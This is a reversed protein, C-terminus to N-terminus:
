FLTFIACSLCSFRNLGNLFFFSSKESSKKNKSNELQREKENNKIKEHSRLARELTLQRYQLIRHNIPVCKSLTKSRSATVNDCVPTLQEYTRYTKTKKLKRINDTCFIYEKLSMKVIIFFFALKNYYTSNQRYWCNSDHFTFHRQM